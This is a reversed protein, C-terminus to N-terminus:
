QIFSFFVFTAFLVIHIFGELVNTEGDSFVIVSSFLTLSILVIQYTELRLDVHMGMVMGVVLVAPITLLVTSLTAGMAINVVTQMKNNGASRIATLLEHSASIIAVVVAGLGMPLTNAKLTESMFESMVESLFGIAAISIFLITAHYLVNISKHSKTEDEEKQYEFFYAHKGTQIRTFVAYMVLCIAVLFIVYKTMHISPIFYPLIMSIGIAVAIMAIYSNSSDVNYKQEGYKIGGIIASLALIGNMDIMIASYITDRALTNSHESVM